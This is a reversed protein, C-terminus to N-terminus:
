YNEKLTMCMIVLYNGEYDTDGKHEIDFGCLSLLRVRVPEEYISCPTNSTIYTGPKYTDRIFQKVIEVDEDTTPMRPKGMFDLTLVAGPEVRGDLPTDTNM